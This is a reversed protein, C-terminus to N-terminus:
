FTYQQVLLALTHGGAARSLHRPRAAGNADTHTRNYWYLLRTDVPQAHCTALDPLAIQTLIHVTTGTFCTFNTGLLARRTSGDLECSHTLIHVTTGTFCTFNTGLLARRTSGDLECSGAPASSSSSSSSAGAPPPPPPPFRRAYELERLEWSQRITLPRLDQM